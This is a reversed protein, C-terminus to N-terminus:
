GIKQPSYRNITTFSDFITKDRHKKVLKETKTIKLSM